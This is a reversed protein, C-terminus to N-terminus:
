GLETFNCELKYNKNFVNVKEEKSTYGFEVNLLNLLFDTNEEYFEPILEKLSGPNTM